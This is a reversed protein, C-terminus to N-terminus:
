AAVARLLWGPTDGMSSPESRHRQTRKELPAVVRGSEGARNSLMRHRDRRALAHGRASDPNVQDFWRISRERRGGFPLDGQGRHRQRKRLRSGAISAM